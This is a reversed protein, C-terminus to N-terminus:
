DSILLRLMAKKGYIVLKKNIDKMNCILLTNKVVLILTRM